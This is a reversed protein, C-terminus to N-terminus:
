CIKANECTNKADESKFLTLGHGRGKFAPAAAHFSSGDKLLRSKPNKLFEKAEDLLTVHESTVEKPKETPKERSIQQNLNQITKGIM